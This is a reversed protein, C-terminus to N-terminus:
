SVDNTGTWGYSSSFSVRPIALSKWYTQQKTIEMNPHTFPTVIMFEFNLCGIIELNAGLIPVQVGGQLSVRRKGLEPKISSLLAVARGVIQDKSGAYTPVIDFKLKVKSADKTEFVIPDGTAVGSHLPLDVVTPEGMANQASVVLSLATDLQTLHAEALPINDLQVAPVDKRTDMSGLSVLVMAEGEKLYRHGFSKVPPSQTGPFNSGNTGLSGSLSTTTPPTLPSSSLAPTVSGSSGPTNSTEALKRAIRLHGRLVAHEKASWGSLDQKDVDSEGNEVLLDVVGEQGEVAAVFLPTWGYNKEALEVDARQTDSGEILVKVCDVHGLRSAHHLATEGNEDQYNIDVGAEVLLKVIVSANKKAALALAVSSKSVDKRASAVRGSTGLEGEPVQNRPLRCLYLYAARRSGQV